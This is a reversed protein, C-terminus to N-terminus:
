TKKRIIALRQTALFLRAQDSAAHAATAAAAADTLVYGSLPVDYTVVFRPGSDAPKRIRM